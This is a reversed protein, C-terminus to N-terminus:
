VPLRKLLISLDMATALYVKSWFWGYVLKAYLLLFFKIVNFVKKM